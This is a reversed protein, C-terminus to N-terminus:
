RLKAAWGEVGARTLADSIVAKSVPKGLFQDIGVSVARQRYEEDYNATVAIIPVHGQAAAKERRRIEASAQFGDMVPMQLDMFIVDYHRSGFREVAIQGNEATEVTAGLQNIMRVIVKQNVPNDEVVLAVCTGSTSVVPGAEAHSSPPPGSSEIKPPSSMTQTEVVYPVSLVFRSGQGVTSELSISGGLSQAANKAVSLGIGLGAHNRSLGEAAQVFPEFIRSQLTKPIGPGTDLVSFCLRGDHLYCRLAVQGRETFRLANDVIKLLVAELAYADSTVKEPVIPDLEVIFGLGRHEAFREFRQRVVGLLDAVELTGYNAPREPRGHRLDVADNVMSLLGQACTVIQGITEQADPAAPESELLQALSIVGALPTRLEHTMTTFIRSELAAARAAAERAASLERVQASLAANQANLEDFMSGLGLIARLVRAGRAWVTQSAVHHITYVCANAACSTQVTADPHGLFRPVVRFTGATLHAFSQSLRHPSSVRIRVELSVASLAVVETELVSFLNKSSWSAALRYFQLPSAFFGALRAASVPVDTLVAGASEIASLGGARESVREVVQLYPEWDVRKEPDGAISLDIGTGDFLEHEDIGLDEAIRLILDFARCSVELM